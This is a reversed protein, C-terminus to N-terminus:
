SVKLSSRKSVRQQGTCYGYSILSVMIFAKTAEADDCTLVLCL